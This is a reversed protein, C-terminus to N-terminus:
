LNGFGTMAGGVGAGLSGLGSLISGILGSSSTKGYTPAYTTAGGFEYGLAPNEQSQTAFYENMLNSIASSDYGYLSSGMSQAGSQLSQDATLSRNQANELATTQAGLLQSTLGLQSQTDYNSMALAGASGPLNGSFAMQEKVDAAGQGIQQQMSNVMAQWAPTQDIPNGTTGEQQLNNLASNNSGGGGYFQMMMQSIPDLPSSVQGAGTTGGTPLLAQLNYPNMGQGIQSTLWNMMTNQLTSDIPPVEYQNGSLQQAPQTLTPYHAETKPTQDYTYNGASSTPQGQQPVTGPPAYTGASSYASSGSGQAGTNWPNSGYTGISGSSGGAGPMTPYSGYQNSGGVTTPNFNTQARQDPPLIAVSSM